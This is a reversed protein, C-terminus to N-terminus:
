RLKGERILKCSLDLLWLADAEDDTRVTWGQAEAARVMEHKLAKAKAVADSKGAARLAAIGRERATNVNGIAHAKLTANHIDVYGIGEDECALEIMASLGLLLRAVPMAMRQGLNPREFVVIDPKEREIVKIIAIHFRQLRQGRELKSPLTLTSSWRTTVGLDHTWALGSVGGAQDIALIRQM